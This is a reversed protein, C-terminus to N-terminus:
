GCDNGRLTFNFVKDDKLMFTTECRREEVAPPLSANYFPGGFYPGGFPGGFYPGGYFGGFDAGPAVEIHHQDYALYQVGQVTIQKDPVGLQQVLTAASDGTYAAMRSQLSPEAVCAALALLSTLVIFKRM